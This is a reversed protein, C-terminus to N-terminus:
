RSPNETLGMGANRPADLLAFLARKATHDPCAPYGPAPRIGRYDERILAACDLTKTAPTAGTTAACRRTCAV